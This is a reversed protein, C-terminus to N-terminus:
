FPTFVPTAFRKMTVFHRDAAEERIIAYNFPSSDFVQADSTQSCNKFNM